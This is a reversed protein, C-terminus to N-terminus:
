GSEGASQTLRQLPPSNTPPFLATPPLRRRGTALLREGDRRRQCSGGTTRSSSNGSPLPLWRGSTQAMLVCCAGPGGTRGADMNAADPRGRRRRPRGRPGRRPPQGARRPRTPPGRTAVAARCARRGVWRTGMALRRAARRTHGHGCSASAPPPPVAVRRRGGRGVRWHTPLSRETAGGRATDGATSDRQTKGIPIQSTCPRSPPDTM